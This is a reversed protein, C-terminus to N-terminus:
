GAAEIKRYAAWDFTARAPSKAFAYLGLYAGVFGGASHTSLHTGDLTEGIRTWAQNDLSYECGFRSGRAQMRLYVRGGTPCDKLPLRSIEGAASSISICCSGGAQVVTLQYFFKENQFAVLGAEMEQGAELAVATSFQANAHQLRRGLFSPNGGDAIGVPRAQLVLAGDKLEYWKEQPTRIFNWELRLQPQDFDDKWDASAESFTKEGKAAAMPSSVEAPVVKGKALIVPWEGSWDVPHFFTQRGTNYHDDVYPQCGLFVAVWKGEPTQVLDAHGTCTVPDPRGAPLDRQTLIPNGAFVEYPGWISRSRFIVESHDPGTGGEAAMLFYYGERKFLHPGEIWIPKKALDTGGNVIIRSGGVLTMSKLDFAQLWIARHGDYLPKGEPPPGNNVIYPTGDQDFFFSPDIGDVEPLWVPDSWPGAPNRATVFFNGGGGVLTTVMYFLGDHHRIAPAFIGESIRQHTLNLQSPRDLIHGIQKWHVLDTSHFIPVGPFYSFSSTVLYYDKGVRCISPDPYFGPLIPNAIDARSQANQPRTQM